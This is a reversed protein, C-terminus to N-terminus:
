LKQDRSLFGSTLTVCFNQSNKNSCAIDAISNDLIRLVYRVFVHFSSPLEPQLRASSKNCVIVSHTFLELFDTILLYSNLQFM